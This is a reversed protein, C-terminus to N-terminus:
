SFAVPIMAHISEVIRYKIEFQKEIVDSTNIEYIVHAPKLREIIEKMGTLDDVYGIVDIIIKNSGSVETIMVKKGVTDSLINELKAPNIPAMMQMKAKINARREELTLTDDSIIGYEKEWYPLLKEATESFIEDYLGMVILNVEDIATGIVQFLWLGVYSEGYVDSVYDIIRKAAESQLIKDMWETRYWM